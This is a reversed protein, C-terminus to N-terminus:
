CVDTKVPIRVIFTSGNNVESKISIRGGHLETLEKSITLGLGTSSEKKTYASDLQVFKAFIKGHYKKDIGIGNDHVNLVFDTSHKRASIEVEDNDPSFKIANNVLNYLIQQIKRYDAHVEFDDECDIIIRVNKKAALPHLINAVETLALKINFDSCVLKVAKAEIKSIDLIENIMSLLHIGSVRIDSLYESQKPNLKGCRESSLIESFGLIANLPTRLEHSVNALFDNKVRDAELIKENQEKITKYANNKEILGDKLAKLQIGFVNSLELDKIVYSLVSCCAELIELDEACYANRDCSALVIFGFVTGKVALKGTLFSKCGISNLSKILSSKENLIASNKSYLFDIDKESLKYVTDIMKKNVSSYKLQVTDPNLYYISAYDFDFIKSLKKFINEGDRDDKLNIEFLSPLHKILEDKKFRTM